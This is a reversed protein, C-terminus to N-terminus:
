CAARRTWGIGDAKAKTEIQAVGAADLRVGPLDRQLVGTDADIGMVKTLGILGHQRRRLGKHTSAVLGHTSAINIIRGWGKEKM